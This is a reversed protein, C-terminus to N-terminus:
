IREEQACKEFHGPFGVGKSSFGCVLRYQSAEASIVLAHRIIVSLFPFGSEKDGVTLKRAAISLSFM